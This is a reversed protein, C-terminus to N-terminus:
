RMVAQVVRGRVTAKFSPNPSIEGVEPFEVSPRSLAGHATRSERRTTMMLACAPVAQKGLQRSQSRKNRKEVGAPGQVFVQAILLRLVEPPEGREDAGLQGISYPLNLM